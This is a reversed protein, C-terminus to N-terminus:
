IKEGYRIYKSHFSYCIFFGMFAGMEIFANYKTSTTIQIIFCSYVFLLSIISYRYKIGRVDLFIIASVVAMSTLSLHLGYLKPVDTYICLLISSIALITTLPLIRVSESKPIKDIPIISRIITRVSVICAIIPISYNSIYSLIGGLYKQYRHLEIDPCTMSGCDTINSHYNQGGIITGLIVSIIYITYPLMIIRNNFVLILKRKYYQFLYIESFLMIISIIINISTYFRYRILGGERINGLNDERIISETITHPWINHELRYHIFCSITSIVYLIAIFM